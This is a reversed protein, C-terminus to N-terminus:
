KTALRDVSAATNITGTISGITKQWRVFPAETVYVTDGDHIVFDRAIFVGNPATLDLVYAIKQPGVVPRNLVDRSIAEPEDRFVFIGTPDALASSLGGVQALAEIASLTQTRFPVRNQGGTAGLATFARPDEQVLIRDGGRLAIDNGPDSYLSQLWIEGENRGRIVTIQAVEPPITVGGARALMASLTRTPRQIPYVGQGGVGGVVSVTEGDGSVRRVAVQPDPTQPALKDTIIMRLAEPTNGAAKIRGAYPVFIFGNGDVQVNDLVGFKQGGTAVLGENVNEYITLSLTDGASITDSGVLGAKLFGPGFGLPPMYAAARAVRDDVSVIFSNSGIQETGAIIERRTPGSRPLSCASVLVAGALAPVLLRVFHPARLFGAQVIGM